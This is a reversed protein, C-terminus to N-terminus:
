RFPRFWVEDALALMEADGASDGYGYVFEYAGLDLAERIREEKCPGTCNPTSLAGTFTDGDFAAGTCLLRLGHHAAWAALWLDLSASVVVIDHGQERHWDLRTRAEPRTSADIQAVFSRGLAELRERTHGGFFHRLLQEKALQAPVLGLKHAVLLPSLWVLGLGLRVPGCAHRVFAFMTDRSTITGDLDFLALRAM